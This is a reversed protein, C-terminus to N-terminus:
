YLWCWSLTLHRRIEGRLTVLWAVMIWCLIRQEVCLVHRLSVHMSVDSPLCILLLLPPPVPPLVSVPRVWDPVQGAGASTTTFSNPQLGWLAAWLTPPVFAINQGSYGTGMTALGPSPPLSPTCCHPLQLTTAVMLLLFALGCFWVVVGLWGEGTSGISAAPIGGVACLLQYRRTVLLSCQSTAPKFGWQGGCPHHVLVSPVQVYLPM